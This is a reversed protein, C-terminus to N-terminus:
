RGCSWPRPSRDRPRAARGCTRRRRGRSRSRGRAASGPSCAPPARPRRARSACGRSWPSSRGGATTGCPRGRSGRSGRVPLAARAVEHTAPAPLGRLRLRLGQLLVLLAGLLVLPAQARAGGARQVGPDVTAVEGPGDALRRAELLLVLPRRGHLLQEAGEAAVQARGERGRARWAPRSTSSTSSVTRPRSALTRACRPRSSPSGDRAEISTLHKAEVRSSSPLVRSTQSSTTRREGSAAVSRLATSMDISRAM